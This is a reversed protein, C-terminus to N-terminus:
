ISAPVIPETGRRRPAPRDSPPSAERTAVSASAESDAASRLEQNEERLRILEQRIQNFDAALSDWYDDNRFKLNRGSEGHILKRMERRMVFIPGAVRNTIRLMDYVMLPGLLLFGPVWYIAEDALSFFVESLVTGPHNLSATFFQIVTFYTM